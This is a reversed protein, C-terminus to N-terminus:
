GCPLQVWLHTGEGDNSVLRLTGGIADVRDALGRLGTGGDMSAGGTGNDHVEVHLRGEVRHLRIEADSADAHKVINTLAEALVFYAANSAMPGVENDAVRIDLRMPVPMRDALDVTASALGREILGAPVLGHVFTRLEAAAQDINSRLTTAGAEVSPGADPAHALQQAELALMVLQVQLGDHLDRAIRLRERDAAEVIRERSRLVAQRSARLEATLREREVAIAVVSGASRVLEPDPLMAADYTIVGV